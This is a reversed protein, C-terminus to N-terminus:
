THKTAGSSNNFTEASPRKYRPFRAPSAGRGRHVLDGPSLSSPWVSGTQLNESDGPPREESHSAESFLHLYKIIQYHTVEEARGRPNKGTFESVNAACRPKGRVARVGLAFAERQHHPHRPSRTFLPTDVALGATPPFCTEAVKDSTTVTVPTSECHRPTQAAEPLPQRQRSTVPHRSTHLPLPPLPSSSPSVRQARPACLKLTPPLRQHWPRQDGTSSVRTVPSGETQPCHQNTAEAIQM